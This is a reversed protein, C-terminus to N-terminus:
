PQWNSLQLPPETCHTITRNLFSFAKLKVLGSVIVESVGCIIYSDLTDRKFYTAGVGCALIPVFITLIIARMFGVFIRERPFFWTFV